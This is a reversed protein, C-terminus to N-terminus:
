GSQPTFGEPAAVMDLAALMAGAGEDAGVRVRSGVLRWGSVDAMDTTRMVPAAVPM